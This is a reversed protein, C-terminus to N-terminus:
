SVLGEKVLTEAMLKHWKTPKHEVKMITGAPYNGYLERYVEDSIRKLNLEISAASTGTEISMIKFDKKRLATARVLCDKSEKGLAGDWNEKVYTLIKAKTYASVKTYKKGTRAM